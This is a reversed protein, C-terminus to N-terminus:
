KKGSASWGLDGYRDFLAAMGNKDKGTGFYATMVGNDNFTRFDGSGLNSALKGDSSFTKLQGSGGDGTGFYATMVGNDNFTTVSGSSESTGFHSALIGDANYTKIIGAGGDDVTVMHVINDYKNKIGMLGGTIMTTGLDGTIYISDVIIDGLNKNQAGMFMMASVALLAGTILGITYQKM